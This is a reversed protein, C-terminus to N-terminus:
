DRDKKKDKDEKGTLKKIPKMAGGFHQNLSAIINYGDIASNAFSVTSKTFDAFTQINSKARTYDQDVYNKIRREWEFKNLAQAIEEYTFMDRHEYLTKPDKSYKSKKDALEKQKKAKEAEERAIEKQKKAEQKAIRKKTRETEKKKKEAAKKKKAAERNKAKSESDLPYPPGHRKGWKQGEVGHHELSNIFSDLFNLDRDNM